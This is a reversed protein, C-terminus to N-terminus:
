NPIWVTGRKYAVAFARTEEIFATNDNSANLRRQMTNKEGHGPGHIQMGRPRVEFSPKIRQIRFRYIAMRQRRRM